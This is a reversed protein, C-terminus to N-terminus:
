GRGGLGVSLHFWALARQARPVKFSNGRECRRRERRTRVLFHRCECAGKEKWLAHATCIRHARFPLPSSLEGSTTTRRPGLWSAAARQLRGDTRSGECGGM